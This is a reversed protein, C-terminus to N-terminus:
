RAPFVNAEGRQAMPARFKVKGAQIEYPHFVVVSYNERHDLAVAVADSKKGTEPVVIRVDYILATAKYKKGKAGDVFEKRLISILDKSPPQERGDYASVHIVKGDPGLAGGYPFFEGHEILMKEAVPLMANMLEECDQKPSAVAMPESAAALLGLAAAIKRLKM